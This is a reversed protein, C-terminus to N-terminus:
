WCLSSFPPEISALIKTYPTYHHALINFACLLRSAALEPVKWFALLRSHICFHLLADQGTTEPTVRLRALHLACEKGPPMIHIVNKTWKLRGAYSLARHEFMAYDQRARCEEFGEAHRKVWLRFYAQKM